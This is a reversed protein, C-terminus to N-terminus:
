DRTLEVHKNKSAGRLMGSPAPPTKMNKSSDITKNELLKPETQPEEKVVTQVAGPPKLSGNQEEMTEAKRTAELKGPCMHEDCLDETKFGQECFLCCVPFNEEGQNSHKQKHKNSGSCTIYAKVCTPDSCAFVFKPHEHHIHSRTNVPNDSFAKGIHCRYVGEEDHDKIEVINAQQKLNVPPTKTKKVQISSSHSNRKHQQLDKANKLTKCCVDCEVVARTLPSKQITQTHSAENNKM